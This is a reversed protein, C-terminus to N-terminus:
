THFPTNWEWNAPLDELLGQLYTLLFHHATSAYAASIIRCFWIFSWRSIESVWQFKLFLVFIVLTCAQVLPLSTWSCRYTFRKPSPVLRSQHTVFRVHVCWKRSAARAKCPVDRRWRKNRDHPLRAHRSLVKERRDCAYTHSPFLFGLLFNRTTITYPPLNHHTM